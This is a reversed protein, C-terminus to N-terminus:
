DSAAAPILKPEKFGINRLLQNFRPDSRLPDYLRDSNIFILWSSKEEYAKALWSFAEEKNDLAIYIWAFVLPDVHERESRSNLEGLMKQAESKKGAVSYTWGLRALSFPAEGTLEVEKQFEALAEEYRGTQLLAYGLSSHAHPFSPDLDITSRSAAIAEDFRKAHNFAWAL